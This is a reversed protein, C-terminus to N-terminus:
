VISGYVLITLQSVWRVSETLKEDDDKLVRTGIWPARIVVRCEWEAPFFQLLVLVLMDVREIM